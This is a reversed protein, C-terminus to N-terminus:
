EPAAALLFAMLMLFAGATWFLELPFVSIM